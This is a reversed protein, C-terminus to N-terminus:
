LIVGVVCLYQIVNYVCLVLVKNVSHNRLDREKKESQLRHGASIPSTLPAALFLPVNSKNTAGRQWHGDKDDVRESWSTKISNQTEGNKELTKKKVREEKGEHHWRGTEGREM